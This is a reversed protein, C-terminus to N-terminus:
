IDYEPLQELAAKLADGWGTSIATHVPDGTEIRTFRDSDFSENEYVQVDFPLGVSLNSKVTSDFSVLLLKLLCSFRASNQWLAHGLLVLFCNILRCSYM